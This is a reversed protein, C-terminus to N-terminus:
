YGLSEKVGKLKEIIPLNYPCRKECSGCAVCDSAHATMAQYRGLAWDKLDYNDHYGKLIFSYPIDIGQTCPQCYGCRRCFDQGLQNRIENCQELEAPSLGPKESAASCNQMVEDISEMGPLAVTIHPNSLNFKMALSGESIVGGALPKMTLVAVNKSFAKEFLGEAQNEIINYPYMITEFVDNNLAEELIDLSHATIGIHGILGAQKAELLAQLAGDEALIQQYVDRDKPNHLQYLDIYDTRMEKLSSKIDQEMAEKTKAMSKTALIWRNRRGALAKGIYAESVTYGKASDIFNIGQEEACHIVRAAEQETLRQIPIGGFGVASVTLGTKGLQRYIM